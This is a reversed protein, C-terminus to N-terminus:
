KIRFLQLGFWIIIMTRNFIKIFIKATSTKNFAKQTKKQLFM